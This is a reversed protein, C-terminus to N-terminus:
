NYFNDTRIYGTEEDCVKVAFGIKSKEFSKFTSIQPKLGCVRDYKWRYYQKKRSEKLGWGCEDCALVDIMQNSDTCWFGLEYLPHM